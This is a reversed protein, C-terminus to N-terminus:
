FSGEKNRNYIIENCYISKSDKLEKEFFEDLIVKQSDNFNKRLIAIKEFLEDYNIEDMM